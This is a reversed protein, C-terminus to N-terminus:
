VTISSLGDRHRVFARRGDASATVDFPKRGVPITGCVTASGTDIVSVSDDRSNVVFARTGDASVVVLCPRAGVPVTATVSDTACALVSVSDDLNNVVFARRGDPSVAVDWPCQGVAVSKVTSAATDIVTVSNAESNVVYAHTGAPTFLPDPAYSDLQLHGIIRHYTASGPDTDIVCTSGDETLSAYLRLGNPAISIRYPYGPVRIPVTRNTTTHVAWVVPDFHNVAYVWRGSPAVRLATPPDGLEIRGIITDRRPSDVVTDIVSLHGDVEDVAYARSGDGSLVVGTSWCFGVDLTGTVTHCSDSDPATDIVSVSGDDYNTVYARTGDPTLVLASPYHGVRVVVSGGSSDIVEIADDDTHVVFM